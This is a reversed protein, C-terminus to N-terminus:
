KKCREFFLYVSKDISKKEIIKFLSFYESFLKKWQKINMYNAYFTKTFQTYTMKKSVVTDYLCHELDILLATKDDSCDHEYLMIVGNKTLTKNLMDIIDRYHEPDVHHLTHNIMIIDVSNSPMTEMKDFHIFSIDSRPKWKIGAFENVDIVFTKKKPLNMKKGIVSATDGINGGYDLLGRVRIKRNKIIPRIIRWKSMARKYNIKESYPEAPKKNLAVLAKIIAKDTKVNDLIKIIDDPKIQTFKTVHSILKVISSKQSKDNYQKNIRKSSSSFM